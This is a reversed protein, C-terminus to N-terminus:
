FWPADAPEDVDEGEPVPREYLRLAEGLNELAEAKTEGQSAVGTGEDTAVVYGDSETLTVRDGDVPERADSGMDKDKATGEM